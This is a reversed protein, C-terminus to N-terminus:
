LWVIQPAVWEGYRNPPNRARTSRRQQQPEPQAAIIGPDPPQLNSRTALAGTTERSSGAQDSREHPILSQDQIPSGIPNPSDDVTPTGLPHSRSPSESFPSALTSPISRTSTEQSVDPMTQRSGSSGGSPRGHSTEKYFRRQKRRQPIVYVSSDSSGEDSSPELDSRTVQPPNSVRPKRAPKGKPGPIPEEVPICNFPLLLNRHLTRIKSGNEPRVKFVPISPDPISCVVYLTEEWRDALKQKGRLGVNRVLVRDGVDLNAEQKGRDYYRKNKDGVKRAHKAAIDYAFQMRSKLKGGYTQPGASAEDVTPSTGLYADVSLRPHWGFLLYHPSYGTADSKTANYAQVLPALYSKWDPKKSNDLTGLMKLLTQNFREASGNGMPHYPTTRTKETQAVKCLEKIVRSEFNRGQDSHLRTPFSYFQIFHEYLAKATTQATQNRCPIAQAYRTFHDTIVLIHEYGGKSRELSLFDMCVLEMPYRSAIPNLQAVPKVPTKRRICRPCSEVKSEVDRELGPWYFRQKALWLTKEKGQHGAEDHVGRLAVSRFSGPIVLQKTERGDLTATRHLVGEVLHLKSWERLYKQVEPSEKRFASEGPRSSSRRLHIVRALTRDKGQEQQWDIKAFSDFDPVGGDDIHPIQSVSLSGVFPLGAMVSLCIAKITDPLLAKRSLGDAAANQKGPRYKITFEYNALAAVWRHGTADLKATSLVYTLPNSDTLVEFTTGMLYDHFKDTVAWKLALFELKHAPYKKEGQRLGRSAYAIVKEVGDQKQYLVAGLGQGCADTHVSFPLSYDAYALIPPNTLKDKLTTFAKQQEEGWVWAAAQSSKRKPKKKQKTKHTCHGELLANLPQALSSYNKVFRRYYGSFGLFQRLEKVNNPPQWNKIAATKEPDTSIGDESVIHGLYSVASKFFECKSPKLKLNHQELRGFVSQLRALHEEFTKSFILIDDIFILCERLHLEGMCKEMLRQFTAPANCLGFSMRESQYFGLNGVSFATKEKDEEEIEVQWYGSRLDLKSFFKSGALTDITDDFRPLMYADKKTLSNLRRHDLCFRLSNDKKRILVVNSSYPSKSEKIAGAELMEKLHQKVEEYMGPPIRRYPQKFPTNDTLEIKHKVLDTKGLDTIGKSFIHEWNGLVQQVRLIQSDSLHSKDIKIGMEELPTPGSTQCDSQQLDSALSDIVKVESIQCIPSRPKIVMPKATINCIKVQIKCYDFQKLKVVRPCVAMPSSDLSETVVETVSSDVDRTFGNVVVTQYPKVSIPTHSCAKVTFPTTVLCDMAMQWQSPVQSTATAAATKLPRIVNTGIIVPCNHNFLTDNVVLVPVPLSFESIFPVTVCTDIYGLYDLKSGDAVTIHLLTQLDELPPRDPLTKYFSESVTTIMSGSDILANAEKGHLFITAENSKGILNPRDPQM